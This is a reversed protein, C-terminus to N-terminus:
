CDRGKKARRSRLLVQHVPGADDTKWVFELEHAPSGNLELTKSNILQYGNLQRALKDSQSQVYDALNMGFPLRDRNITISLGKVGPAQATFINVSQDHWEPPLDLRGEGIHQM